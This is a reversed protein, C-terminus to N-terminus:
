PSVIEVSYGWTFKDLIQLQLTARTFLSIRLFSSRQCPCHHHALSRLSGIWRPGTGKMGHWVCRVTLLYNTRTDKCIEGCSNRRTPKTILLSANHQSCICARGPPLNHAVAVAVLNVDQCSVHGTAACSGARVGHPYGLHARLRLCPTHQTSVELLVRAHPESHVHKRWGAHIGGPVDEGNRPASPQAMARGHMPAEHRCGSVLSRVGRTWGRCLGCM